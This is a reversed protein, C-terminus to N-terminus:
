EQGLNALIEEGVARQQLVPSRITWVTQVILGSQLGLDIILGRSANM